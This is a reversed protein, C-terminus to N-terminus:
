RVMWMMRSHVESGATLRYTYVGSSLGRLDVPIIHEGSELPRDLPQAVMRGTNDFIEITVHQRTNLLFPISTTGNFPNPSNQLLSIAGATSGSVRVGTSGQITFTNSSDAGAHMIGGMRALTAVTAKVVNSMFTFNLTGITDGPTHYNRNRFNAGDTLMLAKDGRDWFPVHDSRRLDPAITSNGPAAISIVRLEPVYQSATADFLLRLDNSNQNAVNTIFNGRNQHAVVSDYAAKFLQNFGTPLTQSNPENSYYGIMEYDLVGTVKEAPRLGFNVYRISGIYGAEEQDFGIFRVSRRFRYPSLARVAELMGVVGSGNDDAGPADNDTDFHACLIAVSDAALLGPITGIINTADYGGSAAWEQRVTQLDNAKFRGAIVEKTAQLNALGTSPHRIGVIQELDARMRSSDIGAVIEAIDIQYRDDAVVLARYSISSNLRPDAPDYTWVIRKDGNSVPYGVDGSLQSAPLAYSSGDSGVIQVGVEMPDEDPDILKFDLTITHASADATATLGFLTPIASDQSQATCSLAIAAAVMMSMRKLYHSGTSNQM